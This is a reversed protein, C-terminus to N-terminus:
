YEYHEKDIRYWNNLSKHFHFQEVFRLGIKQLIKNSAINDIAAAGFITKLHLEEFGYKLSAISVETAIGNGWYEKKLRYGIDYYGKQNNIPLTEYKIGGWGLFEASNKDIIASRGIGFDEYQKLVDQIMKESQEIKVIPENGLYRHVDPDSDLAFFDHLDTLEIRRMLFRDSEFLVNM